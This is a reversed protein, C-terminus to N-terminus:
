LSPVQLSNSTVAASMHMRIYEDETVEMESWKGDKYYFRVNWDTKYYDFGLAGWDVQNM